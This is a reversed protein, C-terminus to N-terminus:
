VSVVKVFKKCMSCERMAGKTVRSGDDKNEYVYILKDGLNHGLLKCKLWMFV